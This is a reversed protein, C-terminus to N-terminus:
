AVRARLTAWGDGVGLQAATAGGLGTSAHYEGWVGRLAGAWEGTTVRALACEISPEMLPQGARAAAVLAELAAAVGARDRRARVAALSAAAQEAAAPDVQFVGGDDGGVLPSRLGDTWRNVGVVVQEGREIRAMRAAMSHVLQQKCYGSEIAGQIGGHEAIHALEVRAASCLSAVKAAV